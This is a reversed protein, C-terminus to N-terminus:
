DYELNIASGFKGYLESKLEKMNNEIDAAKDKLGQIDSQIKDKYTTIMENTQEASM